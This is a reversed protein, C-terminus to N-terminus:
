ASADITEWRLSASPFAQREFRSYFRLCIWQNSSPNSLKRQLDSADDEFSKPKVLHNPNHQTGLRSFMSSLFAGDMSTRPPGQHSLDACDAQDSSRSATMSSAPRYITKSSFSRQKIMKPRTQDVQMPSTSSDVSAPRSEPLITEATPVEQAAVPTTSMALEVPPSASM